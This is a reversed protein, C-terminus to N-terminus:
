EGLALVVNSAWFAGVICRVALSEPHAFPRASASFAEM